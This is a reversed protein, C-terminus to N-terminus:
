REAKSDIINQNPPSAEATGVTGSVARGKGKRVALSTFHVNVTMYYTRCNLFFLMLM